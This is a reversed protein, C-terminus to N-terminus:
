SSQNIPKLHVSLEMELEGMIDILHRLSMDNSLGDALDAVRQRTDGNLQDLRIDIWDFDVKREAMAILILGACHRSLAKVSQEIGLRRTVAEDDQEAVTKENNESM